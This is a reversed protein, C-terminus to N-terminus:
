PDARKAIELPDFLLAAMRGGKANAICPKTRPYRPAGRISEGPGPSRPRLSLV